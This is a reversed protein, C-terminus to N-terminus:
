ASPFGVTWGEPLPGESAARQRFVWIHGEPDAASYVRGFFFSEPEGLIKAGACRAQECHLDIEGPLTVQLAQPCVGGASRPALQLPALEPVIAVTEDGWGTEAFVVRGSADRVVMRAECGFADALWSLAADPDRCHLEPQIVRNEVSM